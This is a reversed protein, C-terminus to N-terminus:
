QLKRLMDKILNTLEMHVLDAKLYDGDFVELLIKHMKDFYETPIWAEKRCMRMRRHM